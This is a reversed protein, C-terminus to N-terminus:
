ATEVFLSKQSSGTERSAEATIIALSTGAIAERIVNRNDGDLAEWCHQPIQLLGPVGKKKFVALAIEIGIRWREGESLESFYCEGRKAHDVILRFDSSVRLQECSEKVVEALVNQTKKAADRLFEARSEAKKKREEFVGIQDKKAIAERVSVGADRNAKAQEYAAKAEEYEGETPIDTSEFKEVLAKLSARDQEASEAQEVQQELSHAKESLSDRRATLKEIEKKLELIKDEVDDCEKVAEKAMKKLSEVDVSDAKLRDKAKDYVEQNNEAWEIKSEMDRLVDRADDCAAELESADSVVDTDIDAILEKLAVADSNAEKANEEYRRAENEIQRKIRSSLELLDGCEELEVSDIIADYGDGADEESEPLLPRFLDENAEANLLAIISKIRKSDAAEDNKIGPDVFDSISLDGEVSPVECEGALKNNGNRTLKIRVGLGDVSGGVTGDRSTLRIDKRETQLKSVAQLATSKGCGNPGSLVTIGGPKVQITAHEIPGINEIEIKNPDHKTM